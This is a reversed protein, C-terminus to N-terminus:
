EERTAGTPATRGTHPVTARSSVASLSFVDFMHIQHPDVMLRIYVTRLTAMVSPEFEMKLVNDFRLWARGPNNAQMPTLQFQTPNITTAGEAPAGTAGPASRPILPKFIHKKAEVLEEPNLSRVAPPHAGDPPGPQPPQIKGAKFVKIESLNLASPQLAPAAAPPANSGPRPIAPANRQNQAGAASLTLVVMAAAVATAAGTVAAPSLKTSRSM